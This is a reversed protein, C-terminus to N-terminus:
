EGGGGGGGANLVTQRLEGLRGADDFGTATALMVVVVFWWWWGGGGGARGHLRAGAATPAGGQTARDITAVFEFRARRGNGSVNNRDAGANARAATALTSSDHNQQADITM